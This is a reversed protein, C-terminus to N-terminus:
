CDSDLIVQLYAALVFQQVKQRVVLGEFKTAPAKIRIESNQNRGPCNGSLQLNSIKM